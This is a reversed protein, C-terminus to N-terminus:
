GLVWEIFEDSPKVNHVEVYHRLGSPWSWEGSEYETSGNICECIRCLSFGKFRHQPGGVEKKSLAKLFEAQGEWPQDNPVPKPFQPTHRSYWYGEIRAM